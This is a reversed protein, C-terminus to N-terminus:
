CGCLRNYLRKLLYISKAGGNKIVIRQLMRPVDDKTKMDRVNFFSIPGEIYKLQERYYSDANKYILDRQMFAAPNIVEEHTVLVRRLLTTIKVDKETVFGVDYSSANTTEGMIGLAKDHDVCMSIVKKGLKFSITACGATAIVVDVTEFFKKPLPSLEGLFIININKENLVALLDNGLGGLGLFVVNVMSPNVTKSFEAIEKLMYPFFDKYRSFVGINYQSSTINGLGSVEIDEVDNACIASWYHKEPDSVCDYKSFFNVCAKQSISFFEGRQLKYKFFDFMAKQSLVEKENINFVLHKCNLRGALLEGWEALISQNSEVVYRESQPIISLIKNIIRNCSKTSYWFPHFLLEYFRNSSYQEFEKIKIEPMVIKTNDIVIVHWGNSELYRKKNRVYIPGGSIGGITNALFIYTKM